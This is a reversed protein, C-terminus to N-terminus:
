FLTEADTLEPEGAGTIANGRVVAARTWDLARAEAQALTDAQVTFDVLVRGTFPAGERRRM